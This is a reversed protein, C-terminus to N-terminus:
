CITEYNSIKITSKGFARKRGYFINEHFRTFSMSKDEPFDFEVTCPVDLKEERDLYGFFDNKYNRQTPYEPLQKYTVVLTRQFDLLESLIEEDIVYNNYIYRLVFGFVHDVQDELQILLTLSTLLNIGSQFIEETVPHPLYGNTMWEAYHRKIKKLKDGLYPDEKASEYLGGYFDAYEVGQQKYLFKAIQTSLGYMHFTHIFSSWTQAELMDDWSMTSTETVIAITEAPGEDTTQSMYDYVDCVKMKYLRKQTLNMEANELVQCQIVEIGHHNGAKIIEFMSHKWSMLTEGPLGLILETYVPIRNHAAMKFIEKIKHQNLNKRKIIDLVGDTMTQVSVTLGNNLCSTEETIKKVLGFVDARQNKAWNTVMHDPRGHLQQQEVIKDVIEGDREVFMGFNADAILLGNAHQALWEIDSFVRQLPFKRVKNYTLSGWDCFTCAYPCGRNTELTVNWTVHPNENVIQDFVGSTYPSILEELDMIRDPEGTDVSVGQQNIVLGPVSTLSEGSLVRVFSREGEAKIIVDIYPHKAFLQPDTIAPEPGGFIILTNPNIEKIRQALTYNYNRNWIYTSFGIVNDQALSQALSEIDERQWVLKHLNYDVRPKAYAWLCGVSYPLFYINLETPGQRFNPQVLSLTKTM